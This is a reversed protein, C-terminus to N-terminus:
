SVPAAVPSARIMRRRVTWTLSAAVLVAVACGLWARDYSGGAALVGAAAPGLAGGVSVGAQTIGTAQAPAAANFRIVAYTLLGNWGWGTIFTLATVLILVEGRPPLALAAYGLSSAALMGSVVILHRGSRRDASWGVAVRVTAGLLSGGALLLGALGPATGAEVTADVYFVALVNTAATGLGAAVAITWLHRRASGLRGVAAAARRRGAGARGNLLIVPLALVAAGLFGARWGVTLAVTPVALGGVVAALPVAAQKGGFAVGQRDRSVARSLRLNAALQSAANGPGGVVLAAIIWGPSPALGVGILSAVAFGLGLLTARTTGLREVSSGGVAYVLGSVLFFAMVATGLDGSSLGVDARVQVSMAGLLFAPLMGLITQLVATTLSRGIDRQAVEVTGSARGGPSRATVHGDAGTGATADDLGDSV